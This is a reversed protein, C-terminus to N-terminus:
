VQQKTQIPIVCYKTRNGLPGITQTTKPCGTPASVWDKQMESMTDVMRQKSTNIRTRANSQLQGTSITIHLTSILQDIVLESCYYGFQKIPEQLM